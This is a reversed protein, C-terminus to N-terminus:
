FRMFPPLFISLPTWFGGQGGAQPAGRLFRLKCMHRPADDKMRLHHCMFCMCRLLRYLENFLLPNYM